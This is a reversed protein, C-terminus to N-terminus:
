KYLPKNCTLSLHGDTVRPRGDYAPTQENRARGAPIAATITVIGYITTSNILM